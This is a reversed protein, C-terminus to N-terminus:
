EKSIPEIKANHWHRIITYKVEPLVKTKPGCSKVPLNDGQITIKARNDKSPYDISVLEVKHPMKLLELIAKIDIYAVAKRM